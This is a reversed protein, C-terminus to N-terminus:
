EDLFEKIIKDAVVVPSNLMKNFHYKKFDDVMPFSIDDSKRIISQMETDMVGPDFIVVDIKDSDNNQLKLVELYMNIAAKSSCYMGWGAIPRRAAGTSIHVIKLKLNYTNCFEILRNIILCPMYYNVMISNKIEESKLLGIKGIPTVVGANNIFTVDRKTDLKDLLKDLFGLNDDSFDHEILNNGKLEALNRGIGIVRNRNNDLKLFLEKGLGKTIGTVIINMQMDEWSM